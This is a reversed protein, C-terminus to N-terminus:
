DRMNWNRTAKGKITVLESYSHVIIREKRNEMHLGTRVAPKKM